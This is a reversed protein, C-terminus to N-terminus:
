QLGLAAAPCVRAPRGRGRRGPPHPVALGAREEEARGGAAARVAVVAEFVGDNDIDTVAVGYNRKAPNRQLLSSFDEFFPDGAPACSTFDAQAGTLLGDLEPQGMANNAFRFGNDVFREGIFIFSHHQSGYLCAMFTMFPESPADWTERQYCVGTAEFRSTAIGTCPCQSWGFLMVKNATIMDTIQSMSFMGGSLRSTCSALNPHNAPPNKTADACNTAAGSSSIKAELQAATM